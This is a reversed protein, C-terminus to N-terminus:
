RVYIGFGPTSIGFGNRYGGYGRGYYGNNYYGNGYYGNRYYGNNYYGRNYGRGYYAPAYNNRYVPRVVARGPGGLRVRVAADADQPAAFVFAGAFM